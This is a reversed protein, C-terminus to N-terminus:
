ESSNPNQLEWIGERRQYFYIQEHFERVPPEDSERPRLLLELARRALNEFRTCVVFGPGMGNYMVPLYESFLMGAIADPAFHDHFYYHVIDRVQLESAANHILATPATHKDGGELWVDIQKQMEGLPQHYLDERGPQDFPAAPFSICWEEHYPIDYKELARQYGLHFDKGFASKLSWIGMAINRHGARILHETAAFGLGHNSTIVCDCTASTRISESGEGICVVPIRLQRSITQLFQNSVPGISIVGILTDLSGIHEFEEDPNDKLLLNPTYGKERLVSSLVGSGMINYPHFPNGSVVLVQGTRKSSPNIFTGKGPIARILHEKKLRALASRVTDVSVNHVKALTREHPLKTSQNKSLESVQRLLEEEMWDVLLKGDQLAQKKRKELSRIQVSSVDM